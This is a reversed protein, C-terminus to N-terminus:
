PLYECKRNRPILMQIGVDEITEYPVYYELVPRSVWKVWADNENGFQYVNGQYESHLPESIIMSFRSAQVDVYLDEFYAADEAMAKDMMLKKEYEPVLRVGPIDGFTLLQRNDIFLVEGCKQAATVKLALSSLAEEVTVQDPVQRPTVEQLVQYTPYLVLFALCVLLWAPLRMDLRFWGSAGAEWAAGAMIVLAILFMDLNHLNNGGGIKVSAVLGVALFAALMGSVALKQWLDYPSSKRWFWYLVLALLPGAALILAPLIGLPYTPNPWLREWLLPQRTVLTSIGTSVDAQTGGRLNEIIKQLWPLLRPIGFGGLLGAAGLAAAELWRRATPRPKELNPAVFATVGALIAPAFMWTYRSIQAYYGALGVLVLNLWFPLRRGGMVLIVCLILPTYIPGQDLFLFTWLGLFLWAALRDRIPRFAFWGLLMYPVTFVLANWLRIQQITPNTFLFPLGWLSQRGRDILAYIPQDLPYNYLRRGWLLSYDWFRNGESWYLQFPYDIAEQLAWGFSVLSGTLAVSGIFAVWPVPDGPRHPLLCGLYVAAGLFLVLRILPRKSVPGYESYSSFWTVLVLLLIAAVWYGAWGLRNQLREVERLWPFGAIRLLLWAAGFSAVGLLFFLVLQYKLSGTEIYAVRIEYYTKYALWLWGLGAAAALLLTRWRDRIWQM